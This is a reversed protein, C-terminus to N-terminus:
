SILIFIVLPHQIGFSKSVATKFRLLMFSTTIEQVTRAVGTYLPDTDLNNKQNLLSFKARRVDNFQLNTGQGRVGGQVNGTLSANVDAYILKGFSIPNHNDTPWALAFKQALKSLEALNHRM